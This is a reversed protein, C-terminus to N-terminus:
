EGSHEANQFNWNAPLEAGCIECTFWNDKVVNREKCRPCLRFIVATTLGMPHIVGLQDLAAACFPWSEPEPCFGTSHNSVGTVEGNRLFSIEGATLVPLGSACAVHESRRSALRLHGDKGVVFTATLSGDDDSETWHAELWARLDAQSKIIAGPKSSRSAALITQPGVYCYLRNMTLTQWWWELASDGVLKIGPMAVGVM